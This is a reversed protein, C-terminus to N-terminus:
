KARRVVVFYDDPEGIALLQETIENHAEEHSNAVVLLCGDLVESPSDHEAVAWAMAVWPIEEGLEDPTEGPDIGASVLLAILSEEDQEALIDLLLEFDEESPAEAEHYFRKALAACREALKM